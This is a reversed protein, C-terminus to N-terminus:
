SLLFADGEFFRIEVEWVRFRFFRILNTFGKSNKAIQASDSTALKLLESTILWHLLLRCKLFSFFTSFLNEEKGVQIM